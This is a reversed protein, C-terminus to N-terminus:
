ISILRYWITVDRLWLEIGSLDPIKDGNGLWSHCQFWGLSRCILDSFEKDQQWPSRDTFSITMEM